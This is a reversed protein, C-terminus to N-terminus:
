ILDYHVSSKYWHFLLFHCLVCYIFSVYTLHICGREMKTRTICSFCPEIRNAAFLRFCSSAWDTFPTADDLSHWPVFIVRRVTTGDLSYATHCIVYMCVTRFFDGEAKM